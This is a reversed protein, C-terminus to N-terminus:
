SNGYLAVIPGPTTTDGGSNHANTDIRESCTFLTQDYLRFPSPDVSVTFSRATGLLLAAELDGFLALVRGTMDAAPNAPMAQVAITAYGLFREGAGQQLTLVNNGGAALMLRGFVGDLFARSGYFKARPRAYEPLLSMWRSIDTADIEPFTDHGSDTTARSGAHASGELLTCIGVAGAYPSTGDGIFAMQDELKALSLAFEGIVWDALSIVSDEILANQARVASMITRATLQVSTATPDSPVCASDEAVPSATTGGIRVPVSVAGSEMMWQRAHMRAVGHQEVNSILIAAVIEPVLVGASSFSGTTMSRTQVGNDACWQAARNNGALAGLFQGALHAARQGEPDNGFNRLRAGIQIRAGDGYGARGMEGFQADSITGTPTPQMTASVMAMAKRKFASVTSNSEIAEEALRALGPARCCFKEVVHEIADQRWQDYQDLVSADGRLQDVSMGLEEAEAQMDRLFTRRDVLPIASLDATSRERALRARARRGTPNNGEMTRLGQISRGVGVSVDAPISVISIEYPTWRTVRYTGVGNEERELVVDDVNYAVSVKTRIGDAIDRLIDDARLSNGFRVVARCVRDADVTARVVVGVHDSVDHNVLVAGGDRIRALDVADRVCSLIEVGWWREYPEESAWALEVTRADVDVARRTLQLDRRAPERLVRDRIENKM